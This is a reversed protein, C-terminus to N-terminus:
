RRIVAVAEEPNQPEAAVFRGNVRIQLRDGTGLFIPRHPSMGLKAVLSSLDEAPGFLEVIGVTAETLAGLAHGIGDPSAQSM